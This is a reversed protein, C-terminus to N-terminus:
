WKTWAILESGSFAESTYGPPPACVLTEYKLAQQLLKFKASLQRTVEPASQSIIKRYCVNFHLLM